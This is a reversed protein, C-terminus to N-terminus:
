LVTVHNSFWVAGIMLLMALILFLLMKVHRRRQSYLTAAFERVFANIWFYSRTKGSVGQMHVGENEALVGARFVHYNTTAFAIKVDDTKERSRILAASNQINELTNKSRDEM